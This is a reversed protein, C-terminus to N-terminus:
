YANLKAVGLSEYELITPAEYSIIDYHPSLHGAGDAVEHRRLTLRVPGFQSGYVLPELLPEQVIAFSFGAVAAFYYFDEEDPYGDAGPKMLRDAQKFLKDQRIRRYIKGQLRRAYDETLPSSGNSM